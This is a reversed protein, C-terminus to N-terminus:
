QKWGCSGILVFKIPDKHLVRQNEALNWLYVQLLLTLMRDGNGIQVYEPPM